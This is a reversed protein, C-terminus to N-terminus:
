LPLGLGVGEYNRTFSGDVQRFMEMVSSLNEEPIGIGTDTIVFSMGKQPTYDCSFSVVGGPDTFKVANALLNVFIQKMRREDARLVPIGEQIEQSFTIRRERVRSDILRACSAMIDSVTIDSELIPMEGAEIRSVDLIDNILDLLHRASDCVYYAYETYKESSDGFFRDRITESFGIISNLPTRLEHSMNALFEIKARNAIEAEELAVNLALEKKRIETIDAFSGVMRTAQGDPGFEALGRSRVWKIDDQPTKVRFICEYHPMRGRLYDRIATRHVVLDEGLIREEFAHSSVPMAVPDYGLIDLLTPSLFVTDPEINWEWIGESTARFALEYRAESRKLAAETEKLRTIDIAQGSFRVAQNSGTKRSCYGTCQLWVWENGKRRFRLQSSYFDTEGKIHRLLIKEHEILDDPHIYEQLRFDHFKREDLGLLTIWGRSFWLDETELNWDWLNAGSGSIIFDLRQRTLSTDLRVSEAETINRGTGRYGAFSGDPRYHPSGNILIIQRGGEPTTRMYSFDRLPERSAIITDHYAWKEAEAALDGLDALEKRTKGIAVRTDFKLEKFVEGEMLTFRDNEDTAWIWDSASNVFAAMHEAPSRASHEAERRRYEAGVRQVILHFITLDDEDLVVKQDDMICCHGVPAGNADHFPQALYGEAGLDSFIGFLPFEDQLNSDFFISAEESGDYLVGCPSNKLEYHFPDIVTERDMMCTINVGTGTQDLEGTAVWRVGFALLLARSAVLYFDGETAERSALLELAAIRDGKQQRSTRDAKSRTKRFTSIDAQRLQLNHCGHTDIAQKSLVIYQRYQM